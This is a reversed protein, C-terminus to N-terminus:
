TSSPPVRDGVEQHGPILRHYTDTSAVRWAHNILTCQSKLRGSSIEGLTTNNTLMLLGEPQQIDVM